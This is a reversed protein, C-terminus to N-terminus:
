VKTSAFPLIADNSMRQRQAGVPDPVDDLGHSSVSSLDLVDKLYRGTLRRRALDCSRVDPKSGSRLLLLGEHSQMTRQM